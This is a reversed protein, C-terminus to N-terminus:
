KENKSKLWISFNQNIENINTPAFDWCDVSLDVIYSKRGFKRFTGENGHCHGTFNWFFEEKAFKPNHTLYIRKGGYKIVLSEIISKVGNRSDHNGEVFIIEGNLQPRIIEFADKPADPAESPAHKLCFDGLHFVLDGVKVRENWKKIMVSNMEEAREKAIYQSVWNGKSDLDAEKLFPRKCYRIINSHYFHNDSTFWINM